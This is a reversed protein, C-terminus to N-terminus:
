CFISTLNGLERLLDQALVKSSTKLASFVFGLASTGYKTATTTIRKNAESVLIKEMEKDTKTADALNLRDIVKQSKVIDRLGVNEPRAMCYQMGIDYGTLLIFLSFHGFCFCCCRESAMYLLFHHLPKLVSKPLLTFNIGYRGSWPCGRFMCKEGFCVISLPHKSPTPLPCEGKHEGKYDGKYEKIESCKEAEKLVTEDKKDYIECKTKILEHVMRGKKIKKGTKPNREEGSRTWEDCEERTYEELLGEWQEKIRNYTEGDKKIKRGTKPNIERNENWEYLQDISLNSSRKSSTM